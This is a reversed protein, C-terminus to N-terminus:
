GYTISCWSVHESLDSATAGYLQLLLGARNSFLLSWCTNLSIQEIYSDGNVCGTYAGAIGVDRLTEGGSLVLSIIKGPFFPM